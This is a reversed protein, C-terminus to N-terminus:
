DRQRSDRSRQNNAGPSFSLSFAVVQDKVSMGFQSAKRQFGALALRVQGRQWAVGVQQEGLRVTREMTWGANVIQGEERTLNYALVDSGDGVFMFLRPKRGPDKMVGVRQRLNDALAQRPTAPTMMAFRAASADSWAHRASFAAPALTPAASADAVQVPIDVARSARPRAASALQVPAAVPSPGSVLVPAASATQSMAQAMLAPAMPPPIYRATSIPADVDSQAANCFAASYDPGPACAKATVEARNLYPRGSDVNHAAVAAVGVAAALGVGYGIARM